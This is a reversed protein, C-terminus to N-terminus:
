NISWFIITVLILFLGLDFSYIIVSILRYYDNRALVLVAMSRNANRRSFAWFNEFNVKELNM